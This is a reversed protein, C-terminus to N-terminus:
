ALAAQKVQLEMLVQQVVAAAQILRGRRAVLRAVLGQEVVVRVVVVALVASAAGVVVVRM